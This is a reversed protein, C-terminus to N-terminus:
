RKSSRILITDQRQEFDFPVIRRIIMLAQRLNEGELVGNIKENQLASDQFIFHVKYKRELQLTVDSFREDSFILRDSLWAIEKINESPSSHIKTWQVQPKPQRDGEAYRPHDVTLKELPKLIIPKRERIRVAVKGEILTTEIRENPYAKLNFETGLVEVKVDELDVIFPHKADQAVQFYGEGILKVKRNSIQFLRDTYLTSGANLRVQTGDPLTVTKREGFAVQAIPNKPAQLFLFVTCLLLVTISAAIWYSKKFRFVPSPHKKVAAAQKTPDEQGIQKWLEERKQKLAAESYFPVQGSTKLQILSEAEIWTKEEPYRELLEHLRLIDEPTAIGGVKKALLAFIEEKDKM